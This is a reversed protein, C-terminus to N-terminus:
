ISRRTAPMSPMPLLVFPVPVMLALMMTTGTRGAMPPGPLRATAASSSTMSGHSLLTLSKTPVPIRVMAGRGPLTPPSYINGEDDGVYVIQSDQVAIATPEVGEPGLRSAFTAGGNQSVYINGDAVADMLYVTPSSEWDPNIAIM